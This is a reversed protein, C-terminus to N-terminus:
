DAWNPAVGPCGPADAGAIGPMGGDSVVTCGADTRGGAGAIGGCTAITGTLGSGDEEDTEAGM